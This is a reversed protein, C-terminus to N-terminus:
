SKKKDYKNKNTMAIQVQKNAINERTQLEQRKLNNNIEANAQKNLEQQKKFNINQNNVEKKDLYQLTDIYDNQSNQNFDQSGTAVSARVDAIRENSERTLANQEADFKQKAEQRETEAQEQMQIQQQQAQQDQERQANTKEEITKLTHTIEALSDAKIINGLDYISAGATNNSLALSRIKETIDRQNVKTSTFVNLDRSLLDTGNMEFNIKEDLSTIYQLRVSPKNSHYYQALDTRMQHVRPMLYESHNVFYMETQSFSMNIAQEVGTATEQSLTQGMRQPTIGIVEFAQQKFYNSLQIRSMLRNTQELNLVQYHQFNLGNETNTISTDLPLMQFDKMAVYAKALNNKGWDEGMSHRPLANQDLMIVTGLEDILIDSIQNNVLNYGIQFPKMKDVLARSTSNRDHFISGEVPLKCGYLTSDGKFQFKLPEVNLYLPKFGMNDNNGYFSPRNPGIKVGGWVQNIWIWDIHDGYILTDKTKKKLVTNDYVPKETVKYNEDVITQHAM